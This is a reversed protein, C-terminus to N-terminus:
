HIKSEGISCEWTFPHDLFSLMVGVYKQRDNGRRCRLTVTTDAVSAAGESVSQALKETNGFLSTYVILLDHNQEQYHSISRITVSAVDSHSSGNNIANILMFRAADMYLRFDQVLDGKM